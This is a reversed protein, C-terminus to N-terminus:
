RDDALELAPLVPRVADPRICGHEWNEWAMVVNACALSINCNYFGCSPTRRLGRRVTKTRRDDGGGARESGDIGDGGGKEKAMCARARTERRGYKRAAEAAM